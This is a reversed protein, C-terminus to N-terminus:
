DNEWWHASTQGDWSGSYGLDYGLREKIGDDEMEGPRRRLIALDRPTWNKLEDRLAALTSQREWKWYFAGEAGRFERVQDPPCTPTGQLDRLGAAKLLNGVQLATLGLVDGLETLSYYL